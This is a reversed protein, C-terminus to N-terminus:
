EPHHSRNEGALNHGKNGEETFDEEGADGRHGNLTNTLNKSVCERVGLRRSAFVSRAASVIYLTGKANVRETNPQCVRWTAWM